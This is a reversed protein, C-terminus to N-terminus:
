LWIKHFHEGWICVLSGMVFTGYLGQFIVTFMFKGLSMERPSRFLGVFVVFISSHNLCLTKASFSTKGPNQYKQDTGGSIQRAM